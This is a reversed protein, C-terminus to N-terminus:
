ALPKGPKHQPPSDRFVPRQDRGEIEGTPRHFHEGTGDLDVQLRTPSM